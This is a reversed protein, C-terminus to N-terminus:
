TVKSSSQLCKVVPDRGGAPDSHKVHNKLASTLGLAKVVPSCMGLGTSTVPHWEVIEETARLLGPTSEQAAEKRSFIM